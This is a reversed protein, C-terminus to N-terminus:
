MNTQVNAVPQPYHLRLWKDTEARRVRADDLPISQYLLTLSSIDKPFDSDKPYQLALDRIADEVFVAQGLIAEPTKRRLNERLDKLMNRITLITMKLRGFTKDAPALPSAYPAKTEAFVRDVCGVFSFFLIILALSLVATKTQLKKALAAEQFRNHKLQLMVDLEM